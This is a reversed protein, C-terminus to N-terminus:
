NLVGASSKPVNKDVVHVKDLPLTVVELQVKAKLCPSPKMSLEKCVHLKYYPPRSNDGPVLPEYAHRRLSKSGMHGIFIRMPPIDAISVTDLTSGTSINALM